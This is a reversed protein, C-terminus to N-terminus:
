EIQDDNNASSAMHDEQTTGAGPAFGHIKCPVSRCSLFVDFTASEIGTAISLPAMLRSLFRDVSGPILRRSFGYLAPAAHNHYLEDASVHDIIVAVYSDRIEDCITTNVQLETGAVLGFDIRDLSERVIWRDDTVRAVAAFGMGTIRSVVDFITSVVKIGAIADMDSQLYHGM